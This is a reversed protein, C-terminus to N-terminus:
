WPYNKNKSEREVVKGEVKLVYENRVNDLIQYNENDPKCVIQIIGSRDRLDVFILGGLHRKKAVWGCLVVNEGVNEIRLDGNYHTRM